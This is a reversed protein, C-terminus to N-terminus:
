KEVLTSYLKGFGMDSVFSTKIQPFDWLKGNIVIYKSADEEKIDGRIISEIEHRTAIVDGESFETWAMYKPEFDANVYKFEANEFDM